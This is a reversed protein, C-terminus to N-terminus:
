WWCIVTDHGFIDDVLADWDVQGEFLTVTKVEEHEYTKMLSQVTEDAESKLIHLVKM